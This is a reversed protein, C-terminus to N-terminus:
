LKADILPQYANNRQHKDSCEKSKMNWLCPQSIYLELFETWYEKDIWLDAM